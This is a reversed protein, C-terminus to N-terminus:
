LPKRLTIAGRIDGVKYGVAKDQPYLSALKDRVAPKM